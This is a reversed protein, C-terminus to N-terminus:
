PKRNWIRVYDIAFTAPFDAAHPAHQGPEWGGIALNLIAVMPKDPIWQKEAFRKIPKGDFYWTIADPEWDAGYTHFGQWLKVGTNVGTSSQRHKGRADKWHVTVVDTVPDVGQWEMMDIEPPWQRNAQVLWFAPWMGPGRPLKARIEAYGYRYAFTAPTSLTGGSQIMGSAYPHTRTSPHATATLRLYGGAITVNRPEYWELELNGGNTCRQGPNVWTYCTFWLKRNLASGDFEDDLLLTAAARPAAAANPAPAGPVTRAGNCASLALALAAAAIRYRM